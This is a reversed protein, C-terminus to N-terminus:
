LLKHAILSHGTAIAADAVPIFDRGLLAKGRAADFRKPMGMENANDRITRDFLGVIRVVWDPIEFRPIKRAREPFAPRLANAVEMFSANDGVAIFRKGGATPSQMAALHAAAVDRVDVIALHMKPAGPVSGDLLRKVLVASTGPDEDLLPGLIAGPNIVALDNHRGAKDMLAWAQREALTKSQAYASVGPGDLNTWDNEDFPKSHDLHGYQVAAISSTLVIREVGAALAAEIARTTGEVAPRILDDKHKPAELIFPSATHQLYRCDQAAEAWGADQMLDLAVFELKAVDAGAAALTARVKDTKKLDRVSGRVTYGANLLALAVHGGLFGSIGTLLVRDSM